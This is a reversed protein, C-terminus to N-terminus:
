QHEPAGKQHAPMEKHAGTKKGALVWQGGEKKLAFEGKVLVAGSVAVKASEGDEEILEYNLKSTDLDFGEHGTIQQNMIKKAADVPKNQQCSVLTALGLILIFGVIRKM